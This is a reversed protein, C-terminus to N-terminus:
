KKKKENVGIFRIFDKNNDRVIAVTSNNYGEMNM